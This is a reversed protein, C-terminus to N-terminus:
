ACSDLRIRVATSTGASIRSRGLCVFTSSNTCSYLDWRKNPKQRLVRIYVFEYLQPILSGTTTLFHPKSLASCKPRAAVAYLETFAVIWSSSQRGM